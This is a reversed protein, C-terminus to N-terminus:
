LIELRRMREHLTTRNMNLLRAAEAIVGNAKNLAENIVTKEVTTLIQAMDIGSGIEPIKLSSVASVPGTAIIIFGALSGSADFAPKVEQVVNKTKQSVHSSILSYSEKAHLFNDNGIAFGTLSFPADYVPIVGENMQKSILNYFLKVPFYSM